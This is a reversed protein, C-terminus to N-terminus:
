VAVVPATDQCGSLTEMPEAMEQVTTLDIFPEPPEPPAAIGMARRIGHVSSVDCPAVQGTLEALNGTVKEALELEKATPALLCIMNPPQKASLREKQAEQLDCLLKTTEDLKQQFHLAEGSLEEAMRLGAASHLFDLRKCNSAEPEAVEMDNKDEQGTHTAEVVPETEKRTKSHEGNTMADLLNDALKYVYEDSKALFESLSDSGQLSAEEGYSSYILDSDEKSINAFSSDYTPAYSTFPGYNIYTVQTIRNRKDERFGQLTNVGSQLRNSMMGLKVPCYGVDGVSPDAPNLIALTTSGDCKRRAFELDCQLMRNSLKGGSEAIVKRIEELEKEAKAAEDKSDKDQRPTSPTQSSESNDTTDKNQDLGAGGQEESKGPLKASPDLGSMFEISQKLSELREQSLIKMGSHLLKRAAKHYITEPKNYIMANECMIRFDVKLEDLTQYCEKKVKNKITSFDMPRKIISSYGPAILDTVPFSFFASPDKRQLQRILQNLAEQLPTQEKEELKDLESRIPTRSQERDDDGDADQGKKKKTMKKKGRDDEPSGFSREKDKKKKKKKDKPKDYDAPQEDYFTDRSSSGTTVENGSVKLVLKLPREGYEEYGHKESKHKKHKKGM